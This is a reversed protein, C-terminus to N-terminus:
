EYCRDREAVANGVAREQNGIMEKLLVKRDQRGAIAQNYLRIDTGSPSAKRFTTFNDIDTEAQLLETRLRLLEIKEDLISLEAKVECRNGIGKEEIDKVWVVASTILALLASGGLIVAACTTAIKNVKDLM